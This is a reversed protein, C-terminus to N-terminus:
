KEKPPPANANLNVAVFRVVFDIYESMEEDTMNRKLLAKDAQKHARFLTKFLMDVTENSTQIGVDFGCVNMEFLDYYGANILEEVAFPLLVAHYYGLQAQTKPYRRKQLVMEVVTKDPFSKLWEQYRKKEHELFQLAGHKAEMFFTAKKAM